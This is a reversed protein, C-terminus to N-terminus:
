KINKKIYEQPVRTYIVNYTIIKNLIQLLYKFKFFMHLCKHQNAIKFNFMMLIEKRVSLMKRVYLTKCLYIDKERCVAATPMRDKKM